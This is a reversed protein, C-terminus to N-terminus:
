SSPESSQKGPNSAMLVCRLVRIRDLGELGAGFDLLWSTALGCIRGITAGQSSHPCPWALGLASFGRSFVVMLDCVEAYRAACLASKSFFIPTARMGFGKNKASKTHFPGFKKERQARSLTPRSPARTSAGVGLVWTRALGVGLDPDPRLVWCGPRPWAEVGLM